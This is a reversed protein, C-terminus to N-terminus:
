IHMRKQLEAKINEGQFILIASLFIVSVAVSIISPVDVNVLDFLIFLVPVIGFLGGVLFYAIYNGTSLKMVKATVYMVLIAAICLIPIVYDLSWGRWGIKWDWFITLMSVIIVQWIISKTINHRKRLADTISLWMSILGFVVFMPWNVSTPFIKFIIYSIVIAVISIFVLIRIVLHREYAPPIVPYIEEGKTGQSDESLFNGCLPCISKGDRIYVKCNNCLIM